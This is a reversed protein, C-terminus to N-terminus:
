GCSPPSSPDPSELGPAAEVLAAYYDRKASLCALAIVGRGDPPPFADAIATLVEDTPVANSFWSNVAQRSITFRDPKENLWAALGYPTGIGFRRLSDSLIVKTTEADM